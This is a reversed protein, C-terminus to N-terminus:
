VPTVSLHTSMWRSLVKAIRLRMDPHPDASDPFLDCFASMLVRRLEVAPDRPEALIANRVCPQHAHLAEHRPEGPATGCAYCFGVPVAGFGVEAADENEDDLVAIDVELADDRVSEITHGTQEQHAEVAQVSGGEAIEAVGWECELCYHRHRGTM